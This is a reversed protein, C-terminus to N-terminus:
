GKPAVLRRKMALDCRDGYHEPVFPEYGAARYFRLASQLCANTELEMTHIGARLAQEEVKELLRKGWGLGRLCPLVYMKRLQGLGNGLPLFAVSGLIGSASDVVWLGGGTADYHAPIDKLDRDVGDPDWCLGHEELVVRVVEGVGPGDEFTARRLQLSEPDLATFPNM